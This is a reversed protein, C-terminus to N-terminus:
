DNATETLNIGVEDGYELAINCCMEILRNRANWELKTGPETENLSDINEYCDELDNLTNQFRCYSMNM